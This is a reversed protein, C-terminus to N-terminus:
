VKHRKGNINFKLKIHNCGMILIDRNRLNMEKNAKLPWYWANYVAQSLFQSLILGWLGLRLYGMTFFSMVICIVSAVIFSNVYIIRNTSSFYSTYITRYNTILLTLCIGILLPISVVADPRIFKMIPLGFLIILISGLIFSALYVVVLTSMCQRTKEINGTAYSEQLTPQYTAYLVSSLAVVAGAMQQGISYAGTETLSLYLSCIVVSLQGTCYSCLQILGERWANYWITIFVDRLEQFSFNASVKNLNEGIDHYQYFYKKGFNRLIIGYSAYAISAGLIGYGFILLILMLVLNIVRALIRNKNAQKIAGVGRLFSDYYNYYLNLSTSFVFIIWAVIHTYGEFNNSINIIYLTGVSSLLFLASVSIILYILKCTKLVKKMLYFDPKGQATKSVGKKELKSIGSWCYTINRAFTITFGFDFLNTIAGVSTFVFWLGLSEGSLYYAMLPIMIVNSCLTMFTGLYSWIVDGRSIKVQMFHTIKSQLINRHVKTISKIELTFM